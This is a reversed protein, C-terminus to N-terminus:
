GPRELECVFPTPVPFERASMRGRYTAPVALALLALLAVVPVFNSGGFASGGAPAHSPPRDQSPAPIRRSEVPGEFAAGVTHTDLRSEGFQMPLETVVQGAASSLEAHAPSWADLDSPVWASTPAELADFRSGTQRPAGGVTEPVAVSTADASFTPPDAPLISPVTRATQDVLPAVARDLLPAVAPDLLPTLVANMQRSGLATRFTSDVAGVIEGRAAPVGGALKPASAALKPAAAAITTPAQVRAESLSLAPRVPAEVQSQPQARHSAAATQVTESGLSVNPAQAAPRPSAQTPESSASEASVAEGEAPMSEPQAASEPEAPAPDSETSASESSAAEHAVVAQPASPVSETPVSLQEEAPAAGAPAVLGLAVALAIACAAFIASPRRTV